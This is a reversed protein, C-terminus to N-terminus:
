AASPQWGANAWLQGIVASNSAIFCIADAIEEPKILRGLQTEPL